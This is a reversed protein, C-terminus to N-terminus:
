DSPLLRPGSALISSPPNLIAAAQMAIYLM